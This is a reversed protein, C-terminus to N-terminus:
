PRSAAGQSRPGGDARRRIVQDDRSDADLEFDAIDFRGQQLSVDADERVLDDAGGREAYRRSEPM